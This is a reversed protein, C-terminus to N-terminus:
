VLRLLSRNSGHCKNIVLNSFLSSALWTGNNTEKGNSDRVVLSVKNLFLEKLIQHKVNDFTRQAGNFINPQSPKRMMLAIPNDKRIPLLESILNDRVHNILGHFAM